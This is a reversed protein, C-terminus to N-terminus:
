KKPCKSTKFIDSTDYGMCPFIFAVYIWTVQNVKWSGKGTTIIMNSLLKYSLTFLVVCIAVLTLM